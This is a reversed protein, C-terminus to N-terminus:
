LYTSFGRAENCKTSNIYMLLSNWSKLISEVLEHTFESMEFIKQFSYVILNNYDAINKVRQM